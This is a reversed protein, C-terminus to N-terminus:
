RRHADFVVNPQLLMSKGIYFFTAPVGEKELADMIGQSIGPRPGDDFTLAIKGKNMPSYYYHYSEAAEHYTLAPRKPSNFFISIAFTTLCFFLVLFFVILASRFIHKRTKTNDLFVSSM